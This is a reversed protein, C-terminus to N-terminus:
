PTFDVKVREDYYTDDAGEIILYQSTDKKKNKIRKGM